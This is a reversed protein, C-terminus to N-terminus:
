RIGCRIASRRCRRRPGTRRRAKRWRASREGVELDALYGDYVYDAQEVRAHMWAQDAFLSEIEQGHTLMATPWQTWHYVLHDYLYGDDPATAWWGRSKTTRYAALLQGTHQWAAGSRGTGGDMFDRLLDHLTITVKRTRAPEDAAAGRSNLDTSWDAAQEPDM